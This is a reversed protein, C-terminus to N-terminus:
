GRFDDAFMEDDRNSKRQLSINLVLGMACFLTVLSSIGCSFFPLPLGTNPLIKTVVGINIFSQFAIYAAVGCCILRGEFNNARVATIICEIVIMFLLFITFISGIFGLEEGIVAFIFDNQAEFIYNANKLSSPDQNNLGKGSLRGSGVAQVAYDQQANGDDTGGHSIEKDDSTKGNIFDIIRNRQYDQIFLPNPTSVVYILFASVLPVSVLLIIGIIKYSLGACFIITVLIVFILITTSLDPEVAVLILPIMLLISLVILFGATNFRDKYMSILKATFIILILKTLESPQMQVGGIKLWREAGKNSVGMIKVLSLMVIAAFYWLWYFRTIFNYDIFSIVLMMIFAMAMGIGQKMTYASNASNVITISYISTVVLLIILRFNYSRLQYRKLM